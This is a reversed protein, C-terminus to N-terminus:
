GLLQQLTVILAAQGLLLVATWQIIGARMEALRTDLYQRTVLESETLVEILGEAQEQTFGKAVLKQISKHTDLAITAM